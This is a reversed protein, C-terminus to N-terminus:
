PLRAKRSFEGGRNGEVNPMPGVPEHPEPYNAQQVPSYRGTCRAIGIARHVPCIFIILIEDVLVDLVGNGCCADDSIRLPVVALEERAEHAM